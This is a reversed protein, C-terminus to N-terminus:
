RWKSLYIIIWFATFKGISEDFTYPIPTSIDWKEAFNQEVFVGSRFPTVNSQNHEIVSRKMRTATDGPVGDVTGDTPPPPTESSPTSETPTDVPATDVAATAAAAAVVPDSPPLVTLDKPVESFHHLTISARTFKM